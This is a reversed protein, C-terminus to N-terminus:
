LTIVDTYLCQLRSDHIENWRGDFHYHGHVWQNFNLTIRLMELYREGETAVYRGFGRSFWSTILSPADHSLIYDFYETEHQEMFAINEEIDMKEQPWWTQHKVRFWANIKRLKRKQSKFNVDNPDLLNWIDHSEAKPICLIHKNEINLITIHDIFFIPYLTTNIKAQRAIGDYIQVQPCSEWFDYDEHNGGIVITTWPKNALFEFANKAEKMTQSGFPLGFDGLVFMTDYNTLKKLEKHQKFSFRNIVEGHIDGTCYLM